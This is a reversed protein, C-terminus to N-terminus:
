GSLVVHGSPIKKVGRQPVQEASQMGRISLMLSTVLEEVSFLSWIMVVHNRFNRQLHKDAHTQDAKRHSEATQM